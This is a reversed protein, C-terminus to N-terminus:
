RITRSPGTFKGRTTTTTSRTSDHTKTAIKCCALSLVRELQKQTEDFAHRGNICYQVRRDAIFTKDIALRFLSNLSM